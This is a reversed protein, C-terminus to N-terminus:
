GRSGGGAALYNSTIQGLREPLPVANRARGAGEADAGGATGGGADPLRKARGGAGDDGTGLSEALLSDSMARLQKALTAKGMFDARGFPDNLATAMYEDADMDVLVYSAFDYPSCAWVYEGGVQRVLLMACKGEPPLKGLMGELDAVKQELEGIKDRDSM